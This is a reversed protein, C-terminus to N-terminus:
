HNLELKHFKSEINNTKFFNVLIPKVYVSTVNYHYLIKFNSYIMRIVIELLKKIDSLIMELFINM